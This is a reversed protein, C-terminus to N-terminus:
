LFAAVVLFYYIKLFRGRRTNKMFFCVELFAATCLYKRQGRTGRKAAQRGSFVNAGRVAGCPSSVCAGLFPGEPASCTASISHKSATVKGVASVEQEESRDAQTHM